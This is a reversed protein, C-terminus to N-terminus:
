RLSTVDLEGGTLHTHVRRPLLSVWDASTLPLLGLSRLKYLFIGVGVANILLFLAKAPTLNVGPLAFPLFAPPPIPHPTPSPQNVIVRRQRRGAPFASQQLNLLNRLPTTGMTFLVYISFVSLQSGIMYLTFAGQGVAGFQAKALEFARASYMVTESDSLTVLAPPASLPPTPFSARSYGPPDLDERKSLSM